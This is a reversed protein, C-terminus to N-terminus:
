PAGLEWLISPVDLGDAPHTDARFVHIRKVTLTGLEAKHRALLYGVGVGNPSGMIAAGENSNPDFTLYPFPRMGRDPADFGGMASFILRQTLDNTVSWTIIYRLPNVTPPRSLFWNLYSIDSSMLTPFQSPDVPPRRYQASYKPSYQKAIILVGDIDNIAHQYWAGSVRQITNSDPNHYQQEDLGPTGEPNGHTTRVCVWAQNHTVGIASLVRELGFGDKTSGMDCKPNKIRDKKLDYGWNPFDSISQFRSRVSAIPPTLLQGAESDTGAMMKLLLHGKCVAKDWDTSGGPGPLWRKQPSPQLTLNVPVFPAPLPVHYDDGLHLNRGANSAPVSGLAVVLYTLLATILLMRSNVSFWSSESTLNSAIVNGPQEPRLLGGEEKLGKFKARDKESMASGHQERIARQMETDVVGPRVSVTVVDPEEVALTLALHNFVAKGAGYAGWGQYAAISAGSSTLIIRGHSLRLSPLAAQILAVGGFVNGDFARRWEEVTAEGVKKVPDLAGHNVILADLRGWRDLAIKVAKEAVSFDSLDGALVEVKDAGYQSILPSLSSTTRSILLLSHSASLLTHASALGIGRSAGTLIIVKNKSDAM